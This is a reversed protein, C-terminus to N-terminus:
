FSLGPIVMRASNQMELEHVREAKELARNLAITLLDEIEEKDTDFLMPDISINKVVRNGTVQVKVAGSGSEGEVIVNDLKTKAEDMKDKMSNLQEMMDNIM